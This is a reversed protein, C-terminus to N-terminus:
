RDTEKLAKNIADQVASCILESSYTAGTIADVRTSQEQIIRPLIGEAEYKKRPGHRHKLVDIHVMRNDRIVVQVEASSPGWAAKGLYAGDKLKVTGLPGKPIDYNLRSCSVIFIMCCVIIMSKKM